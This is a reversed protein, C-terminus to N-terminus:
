RRVTLAGSAVGVNGAPDVARVSVSVPGAQRPARWAVSHRGRGFHTGVAAVVVGRRRFTVTV